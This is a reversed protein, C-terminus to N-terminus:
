GLDYRWTDAQGEAISTFYLARGDPSFAPQNDYGAHDTIRRPTGLVLAGQRRTLDLLFIGTAPPPPAPSAQPAPPPQVPPSQPDVARSTAALVVAAVVGVLSHM